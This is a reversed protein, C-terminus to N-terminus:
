AVQEPKNTPFQYGLRTSIERATGTVQEALGDLNQLQLRSIPISVSVAAVARSRADLIPAGVCTLEEFQEGYDIAYGRERIQKLAILLNELTDITRATYKELGKEEVIARVEPESLYALVAKGLATCHVPSRSGVPTHLRPIKTGDHTLIYFMEGESLVALQVLEGTCQSLKDMLPPALRWLQVQGQRKGYLEVVKLGLTYRQTEDDQEIYGRRVMLTVLRYVTSTPLNVKTALETLRLGGEEQDALIEVIDLVRNIVQVNPASKGKQELRRMNDSEM